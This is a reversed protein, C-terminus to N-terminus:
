GGGEVQMEPDVVFERHDLTTVTVTCPFQTNDAIDGDVTYERTISYRGKVNCGTSQGLQSQLDTAVIPNKIRRDDHEPDRFPTNGNAFDVKISEVQPSNPNATDFVTFRFQSDREIMLTAQGKEGWPGDDEFESFGYALALIPQGEESPQTTSSFALDLSYKPM